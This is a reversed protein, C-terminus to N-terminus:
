LPGQAGLTMTAGISLIMTTGTIGVDYHGQAGLTM